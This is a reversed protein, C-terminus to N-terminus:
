AIRDLVLKHVVYTYVYVSNELFRSGVTVRMNKLCFTVDSRLEIYM